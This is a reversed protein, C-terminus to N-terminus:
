LRPRWAEVLRVQGSLVSSDSTPGIGTARSAFLDRPMPMSALCAAGLWSLSDMNNPAHSVRLRSNMALEAARRHCPAHPLGLLHPTTVLSPLSPLENLKLKKIEPAPM